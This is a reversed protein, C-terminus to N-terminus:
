EIDLVIMQAKDLAGPCLALELAKAPAPETLLPISSRNDLVQNLVQGPNLGGAEDTHVSVAFFGNESKDAPCFQHYVTGSFRLVFLRDGPIRVIYLNELFKEPSKEAEEPSCLSFKLECGKGGTIGTIARHGAHRHFVLDRTDVGFTYIATSDGKAFTTRGILASPENYEDLFEPHKQQQTLGNAVLFAGAGSPLKGTVTVEIPLSEPGTPISVFSRLGSHSALERSSVVM